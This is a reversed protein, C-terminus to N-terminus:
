RVKAVYAERCGVSRGPSLKAAYGRGSHPAHNQSPVWEVHLCQLLLEGLTIRADNLVAVTVAQLRGLEIRESRIADRQQCSRFGKQRLHVASRAENVRRELRELCPPDNAGVRMLMDHDFDARYDAPAFNAYNSDSSVGPRDRRRRRRRHLDSEFCRSAVSVGLGSEPQESGAREVPHVEVADEVAHPVCYSAEFADDAAPEARLSFEIPKSVRRVRLLRNAVVRPMARAGRLRRLVRHGDVLSPVQDASYNPTPQRWSVRRTAWATVMGGM